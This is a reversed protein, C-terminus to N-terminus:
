LIILREENKEPIFMKLEVQKSYDDPYSMGQNTYTSFKKIMEVNFEDAEAIEFDGVHDLSSFAKFYDVFYNVVSERILDTIWFDWSSTLAAFDTALKELISHMHNTMKQVEGKVHELDFPPEVEVVKDEIEKSDDVHEETGDLNQASEDGHEGSDDQEPDNPAAKNKLAEELKELHYETNKLVEESFIKLYDEIIGLSKALENSMNYDDPFFFLVPELFDLYKKALAEFTIKSEKEFIESFKPLMKSNFVLNIVQKKLKEFFKDEFSNHLAKLFDGHEKKVEEVIQNEEISQFFHEIREHFTDHITKVEEAWEPKDLVVELGSIFQSFETEMKNKFGEITQAFKHEVQEEGGELFEFESNEMSEMVEQNSFLMKYINRPRLDQLEDSLIFQFMGITQYQLAADGYDKSNLDQSIASLGSSLPIHEGGMVDHLFLQIRIPRYSSIFYIFDGKEPPTQPEKGDQKLMLIGQHQVDLTLSYVLNESNKEYINDPVTELKWFDPKPEFPHIEPSNFYIISFRSFDVEPNPIIKTPCTKESFLAIMALISLFQQVVKM